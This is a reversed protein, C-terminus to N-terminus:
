LEAEILERHRNIFEGLWKTSVGGAAQEAVVSFILGSEVIGQSEDKWKILALLIRSTDRNASVGTALTGTKAYVKVNPLRALAGLAGTTRM